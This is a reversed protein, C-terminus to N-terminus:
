EGRELAGWISAEVSIQVDIEGEGGESVEFGGGGLQAAHHGGLEHQLSERLAYDIDYDRQQAAISDRDLAEQTSLKFRKGEKTRETMSSIELDPSASSSSLSPPDNVYIESDEEGDGHLLPDLEDPYERRRKERGGIYYNGGHM